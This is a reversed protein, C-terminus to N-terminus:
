SRHPPLVREEYVSGLIASNKRSKFTTGIVSVSKSNIKTTAKKKKQKLKFM